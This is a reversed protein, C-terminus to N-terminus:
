ILIHSIMCMFPLIIASSRYAPDKERKTEPQIEKIVESRQASAQPVLFPLGCSRRIASM